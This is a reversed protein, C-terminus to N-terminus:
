ATPTVASPLVVDNAGADRDADVVQRAESEVRPQDFLVVSNYRDGSADYRGVKLLRQVVRTGTADSICCWTSRTPSTTGAAQYPLEVGSQAVCSAFRALAQAASNAHITSM